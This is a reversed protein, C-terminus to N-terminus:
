RFKYFINYVDVTHLYADRKTSELHAHERQLYTRVQRVNKYRKLEEIIREKLLISKPLYKVDEITGPTHGTRDNVYKFKVTDRGSMYCIVKLQAKCGVQKSQQQIPRIETIGRRNDSTAHRHCEYQKSWFVTSSKQRKRSGAENEEI